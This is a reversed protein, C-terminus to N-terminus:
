QKQEGIILVRPGLVSTELATRRAITLQYHLDLYFIMPSERGSSNLVTVDM